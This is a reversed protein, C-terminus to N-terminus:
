LESLFTSSQMIEKDLLHRLEMNNHCLSSILMDSGPLFVTHNRLDVHHSLEKNNHYLM